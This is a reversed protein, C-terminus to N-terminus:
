PACGTAPTASQNGDARLLWVSICTRGTPDAALTVTSQSAPVQSTSKTPDSVNQYIYSDGTQPTPDKWSFAIGGATVTGVLQKPSPVTVTSGLPDVPAPNRTNDAPPSSTAGSTAVIVGGGALAVVLVVATM